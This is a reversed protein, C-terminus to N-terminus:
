KQVLFKYRWERKTKREREREREGVVTAQVIFINLVDNAPFVLSPLIVTSNSQNAILQM